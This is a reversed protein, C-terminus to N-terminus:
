YFNKKPQLRPALFLFGGTPPFSFITTIPVQVTATPLTAGIRLLLPLTLPDRLPNRDGCCPRGGSDMGGGYERRGAGRQEDRDKSAVVMRAKHAEASAVQGGRSDRKKEKRKGNLRVGKPENTIMQPWKHDNSAM